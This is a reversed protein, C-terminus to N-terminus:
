KNIVEISDIKFKFSGTIASDSTNGTSFAINTRTSDLSKVTGSISFTYSNGAVCSDSKMVITKTNMSGHTLYEAVEFNLQTLLSANTTNELVTIKANIEINDGISLNSIPNNLKFRFSSATGSTNNYSLVLDGDDIYKSCYTENSLIWEDVRDIIDQTSLYPNTDRGWLCSQYPRKDDLRIGNSDVYKTQSEKVSSILVTKVKDTEDCYLDTITDSCSVIDICTPELKSNNYNLDGIITKNKDTMQDYLSNYSVETDDNKFTVSKIRILSTYDNVLPNQVYTLENFKLKIPLSIEYTIPLPRVIIIPGNSSSQDDSSSSESYSLSLELTIFKDDDSDDTPTYSKELINVISNTSDNGRIRIFFGDTNKSLRFNTSEKFNFNVKNTELLSMKKSIDITNYIVYEDRIKNNTLFSPNVARIANFLTDENYDGNSATVIQGDGDRKYFIRGDSTQVLLEDKLAHEKYQIDLASTGYRVSDTLTTKAM